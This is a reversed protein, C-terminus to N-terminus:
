TEAEEVLKITGESVNCQYIKATRTWSAPQNLYRSKERRASSLDTVAFPTGFGRGTYHLFEKGDHVRTIIYFTM